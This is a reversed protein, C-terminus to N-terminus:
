NENTLTSLQTLADRVLLLKAGLFSNGLTLLIIHNEKKFRLNTREGTASPLEDCNEMVQGGEYARDRLRCACIPSLNAVSASIRSYKLVKPIDSFKIPINSLKQSYKPM